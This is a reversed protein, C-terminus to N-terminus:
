NGRGHQFAAISPSTPSLKDRFFELRALQRMYEVLLRCQLALRLLEPSRRDDVIKIAISVM